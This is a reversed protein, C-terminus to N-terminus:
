SQEMRNTRLAVVPEDGELDPRGYDLWDEITSTLRFTPGFFVVYEIGKDVLDAIQSDTLYYERNARLTDCRVMYTNGAIQNYM